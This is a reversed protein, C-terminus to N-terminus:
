IEAGRFADQVKIIDLPLAKRLQNALFLWQLRRAIPWKGYEDLQEKSVFYTFGKQKEEMM